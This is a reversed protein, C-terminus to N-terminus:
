KDSDSNGAILSGVDYLLKGPLWVPWTATFLITNHADCKDLTLLASVPVCMAFYVSLLKNKCNM